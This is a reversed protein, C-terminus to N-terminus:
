LNPEMSVGFTGSRYVLAILRQAASVNGVTHDERGCTRCMDAYLVNKDCGSCLGADVKGVFAQLTGDSVVHFGYVVNDFTANLADAKTAICQMMCVAKMQDTKHGIQLVAGHLAHRLSGDICEGLKLHHQTLTRLKGLDCGNGARVNGLMPVKM